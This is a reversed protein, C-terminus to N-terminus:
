PSSATSDFLPGDDVPTDKSDHPVGVLVEGECTGGFGDDATFYIHYVRGNGPVKKTGAREARVEATSTGVGLGDPTFKGDGFTDVPEDQYIGDITITVPDSGPDTIDPDTVGLIDIPEFKHNPPWIVAVSPFAGSCDPPRNPEFDYTITEPATGFVFKDHYGVYQDSLGGFGYQLRVGGTNITAGQQAVIKANPWGEIIGGITVLPVFGTGVETLLGGGPGPIRWWSGILLDWEFWQNSPVGNTGGPFDIGNQQINTTNDPSTLIVGNLVTVMAGSFIGSQFWPEFVIRDDFTGNGDVDLFLQIYPTTFLGPPSPVGESYGSFKLETIDALRIGDFNSTHLAGGNAGPPPDHTFCASGMGLPPTAPGAAFELNAVTGFNEYSWGNLNSPSVTITTQAGVLTSIAFVVTVMISIMVYRKM